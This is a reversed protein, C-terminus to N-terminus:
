NEKISLRRIHGSDLSSVVEVDYEKDSSLNAFIENLEDSKSSYGVYDADSKFNTSVIYITETENNAIIKNVLSKIESASKDEGIFGEFRANFQESTMADISEATESTIGLGLDESGNCGVFSILAICTIMCLFLIKKM